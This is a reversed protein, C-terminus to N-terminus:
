DQPFLGVHGRGSNSLNAVYSFIVDFRKLDELVFEFRGACENVCPRDFSLEVGIFRGPFIM